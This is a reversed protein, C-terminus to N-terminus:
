FELGVPDMMLGLANEKGKWFSGGDERVGSPDWSNKDRVQVM